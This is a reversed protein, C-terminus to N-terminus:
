ENPDLIARGWHKEYERFAALALDRDSLNAHQRNVHWALVGYVRNRVRCDAAFNGEIVETKQLGARIIDNLRDIEDAAWAVYVAINDEAALEYTDLEYALQARLGAASRPETM